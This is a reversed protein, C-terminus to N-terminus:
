LWPTFLYTSYISTIEGRPPLTVFGDSKLLGIFDGSNGTAAPEAGGDSLLKVPLHRTFEALQLHTASVDVRRPCPQLAGSAEILAPIVFTHLGTLASVPNGPLALIMQGLPGIWCGAPKGPRHAVGHFLRKCGLDKLLAPVFDRSGKSVAGTLVVWDHEGLLSEVIPRAVAADDTLVGMHMPAFGSHRLASSLAHANSQRLQYIEPVQDIAVLEDGTALLAIKPLCSVRLTRAGCSAAVGIQCSELRTGASLLREGEAADSGARHLHRGAAPSANGLFTVNGPAKEGVDEVPLICDAGLPCPAGTMVEVCTGIESSLSVAARGAPSSGTVRFSRHGLEWDSLRLAYGDMMVRDFAPFARDAFIDERLIRGAASELPCEEIGASPTNEFLIKLAESFSIM